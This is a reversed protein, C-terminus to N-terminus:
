VVELFTKYGMRYLCYLAIWHGTNHHHWMHSLDSTAVCTKTKYKTHRCSSSEATMSWPLYMCSLMSQETRVRSAWVRKKSSDVPRSGVPPILWPFLARLILQTWLFLARGEKLVIKIGGCKMYYKNGDGIIANDYSVICVKKLLMSEYTCAPPTYISYRRKWKM